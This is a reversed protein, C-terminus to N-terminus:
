IGPVGSAARSLKKRLFLSLALTAVLLTWAVVPSGRFVPTATRLLTLWIAVLVSGVGVALRRETASWPLGVTWIGQMALCFPVAVILDVLYHEGFGMTALVTFLLFFATLARAWKPWEVSNWFVLLAASFHLSPMANRPADAIAIPAVMLSGL